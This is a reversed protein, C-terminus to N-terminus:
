LQTDAMPVFTKCVPCYFLWDEKITATPRPPMQALWTEVRCTPCLPHLPFSGKSTRKPPSANDPNHM